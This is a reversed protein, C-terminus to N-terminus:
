RPLKEDSIISLFHEEDQISVTSEDENKVFTQNETWDLGVEESLLDKLPRYDGGIEDWVINHTCLSKKWKKECRIVRDDLILQANRMTKSKHLEEVLPFLIDKRKLRQGDRYVHIGWLASFGGVATPLLISLNSVLDM